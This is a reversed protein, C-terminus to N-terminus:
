ECDPVCLRRSISSLFIDGIEGPDDAVSLTGSTAAAIEALEGREPQDGFAIIFLTVPREPDFRDQLEAVLEQHSIESSGDDRGATLVIVSNIHDEEYSGDVTEYAALINDYLRAQGGEVGIDEAIAQLEERRTAGSGADSSGLEALGEAEERGTPGFGSSLLWLGMDTDDPFLTLGLLAAQRTVELRSPGGPAIDARMHGSVDALVLAQSPMSLRNWDEVASLLADGTLDDHTRPRAPDVGALGELRAPAAGDPDRFGMDRLRERYREGSLVAFLDDAAQRVVPDDGATVFPYDLSVTGERPYLAELPTRPDEANYAAVAQEPLVAVPAAGGPAPYVGAPDIEGFATDPQADRVFDTMATDAADGTGLIRRVAQMAAMGPVGRNPDVMVLPSAEPREEPLLSEWTAAVGETGRPVAIVVPSSALSRPETEITRAGSESVRALEVWASSEPVWVDPVVDSGGGGGGALETMVRHPPVEAAQAYVCTGSYERGADNFEDAAAQLVPAIGLAGAVRLYRTEGCGALRVAYPIAVSLVAILAVAAAAFGLPSALAARARSPQRHRGNPM